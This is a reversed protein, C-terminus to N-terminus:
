RRSIHTCENSLSPLFRVSNVFNKLKHESAPLNRQVEKKNKFMLFPDKPLLEHAIGTRIASRVFEIHKIASNQGQMRVTRFFHFLNEAFALNLQSLRFDEQHYVQNVMDMTYRLCREVKELTAPSNEGTEIKRRVRSLHLEFLYRLSDKEEYHDEKANSEADGNVLYVRFEQLNDSQHKKKWSTWDRIIREELETLTRRVAKEEPV